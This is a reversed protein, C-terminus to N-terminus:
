QVPGIYPELRTNFGDTGSTSLSSMIGVTPALFSPYDAMRSSFLAFLRHGSLHFLAFSFSVQGARICTRMAVAHFHSRYIM